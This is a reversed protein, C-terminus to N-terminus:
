QISFPEFAYAEGVRIHLIYLGASPPLSLVADAQTLRLTQALVRSGQPTFIQVEAEGGLWADPVGFHLSGDTAPNPYLRLAIKHDVRVRTPNSVPVFRWRQEGAGTYAGLRLPTGPGTAAASEIIRSVNSRSDALSTIAYSGDAAREIHVRNCDQVNDRTLALATGIASACGAAGLTLGGLTNTMAYDGRGLATLDWRQCDAQSRTNLQLAQGAAGTCGVSEWVLGTAMNEVEFRGQPLWDRSVFPWGSADWTLQAINLKPAGNEYQDYFHHTLYSVGNEEFIGVHGPGIYRGERSLLTTGGNSSLAAGSKDRYPGTPSTSRGVQMYYSSNAGQCCSGANLFLYYYGDHYQVYGAERDGNAVATIGTGASKGTTPNLGIVKLGSWYSGYVMWLGGSPGTFIGPDIANANSGASTYVVEGQDQWRFNPSAPDLTVNTAVGIASVSSGFTSCSYYLYYKGNMFYVDPAWFNGAFLPVRNTIWSPRTSTTFVPAGTNWQVLDKSWLTAIGEGTGFIWYTDGDKVIRSPDHVGIAGQLAWVSRFSFLLCLLSTLWASRLLTRRLPSPIM